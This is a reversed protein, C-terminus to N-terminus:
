RKILLGQGTPLACIGVGLEKSLSNMAQHQEEFGRFAYDDLVVIGGPTMKPWFHRLAAVEPGACNMDIHLYAVPGDPGQDLTEPVTGAIVHHNKWQAFNARAGEAGDVYFGTRLYEQSTEFQEPTVYRADLGAFTDFLYYTKGLSDWDLNEMIASSQFGRNVGCEVFDGDLKSASASAWLSIHIRWHFDYDGGNAHSGRQYARQFDPDDMFSHRHFSVLGDTAYIGLPVKHTIWHGVKNIAEQIM